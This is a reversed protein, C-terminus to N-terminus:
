TLLACLDTLHGTRQLLTASGDGGFLITMDGHNVFLTPLGTADAQQKSQLILSPGASTFLFDGNPSLTADHGTGSANVVLSAGTKTNTVEVKFVGTVVVFHLVGDPDEVLKAFEKNAVIGEHIQTGCAPATFDGQSLFTWSDGRALATSGTALSMAIAVVLVCFPRRM